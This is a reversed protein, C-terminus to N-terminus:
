ERQTEKETEIEFLNRFLVYQGRRRTVRSLKGGPRRYWTNLRMRKRLQALFGDAQRYLASAKAKTTEYQSLLRRTQSDMEPANVPLQKQKRKRKM